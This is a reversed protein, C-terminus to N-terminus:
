VQFIIELIGSDFDISKLEPISSINIYKYVLYKNFM